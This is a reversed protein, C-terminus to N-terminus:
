SVWDGLDHGEDKAEQAISQLDSQLGSAFAAFGVARIIGLACSRIRARDIQVSTAVNKMREVAFSIEDPHAM